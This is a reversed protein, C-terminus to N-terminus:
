LVKNCTPCRKIQSEIKQIETALVSLALEHRNIEYDLSDLKSGLELLSSKARTAMDKRSRIESLEPPNSINVALAEPISQSLAAKRSRLDTLNEFGRASLPEPLSIDPPIVVMLSDRYSSVKTLLDKNSTDFTPVSPMENLSDIILTLDTLKSKVRNLKELRTNLLEIQSKVEKLNLLDTLVEDFGEFQDLKAELQQLDERKHHMKSITSRRDSEAKKLASNLLSVRDVDSVAEALVSGPKDLLFIQGSFQNAISPWVDDGSFSVPSVGFNTIFEPVERGPYIPDKGDIMYYTKSKSKSVDKVWSITAENSFTIDVQTQTEGHRVFYNGPTNQFVAKIARLLATKGANNSGTIATLGEVEITTDKLSQFNRVRATFPM